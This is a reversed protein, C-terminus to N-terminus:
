EDTVVPGRRRAGLRPYGLQLRMALGNKGDPGTGDWAYRERYDFPTQTALEDLKAAAEHSDFWALQYQWYVAKGTAAAPKRDAPAWVRDIPIPPDQVEAAPGLTGDENLRRANHWAGLRYPTTGADVTVGLDSRPRGELFAVLARVVDYPDVGNGTLGADPGGWTLTSTLRQGQGQSTFGECDLELVEGSTQSSRLIGAGQVVDDFEAVLLTAHDLLLPQGDPAQLHEYTHDITASLTDPASLAYGITPASAPLDRDLWVLQGGVRPLRAAHWRWGDM